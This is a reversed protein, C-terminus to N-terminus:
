RSGVLVSSKGISSLEDSTQLSDRQVIYAPVTRDLGILLRSYLDSREKQQQQKRKLLIIRDTATPHIHYPSPISHMLQKAPKTGKSRKIGRVVGRTRTRILQSQLLSLRSLSPLNVRIPPESLAKVVGLYIPDKVTIIIGCFM